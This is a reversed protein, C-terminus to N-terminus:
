LGLGFLINGTPGAPPSPLEMYMVEALVGGEGNMGLFTRNGVTLSTNIAIVNSPAVGYIESASWNVGDTSFHLSNNQIWEWGEEESGSWYGETCTHCLYEPTTFLMEGYGTLYDLNVLSWTSGDYIYIHAPNSESLPDFDGTSFYFLMGGFVAMNNPYTDIAFFHGSDWTGGSKKYIAPGMDGGGDATLLYLDGDYVKLGCANWSFGDSERKEVTWTSGDASSYCLSWTGAPVEDSGATAVYLRGDYVTMSNLGYPNYLAGGLYASAAETWISGDYKYVVGTNTGITEIAVFLKGDFEAMTPIFGGEFTSFTKVLDWSLGNDSSEYVRPYCGTQYASNTGTYLKGNFSCVCLTNCENDIDFHDTVRNYTYINTM